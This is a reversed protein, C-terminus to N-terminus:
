VFECQLRTSHRSDACLIVEFQSGAMGPIEVEAHNGDERRGVMIACIAQTRVQHFLQGGHLWSKEPQRTAIIQFAIVDGFAELPLLGDAGPDIPRSV